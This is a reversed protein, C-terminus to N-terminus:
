AARSTMGRSIIGSVAMTILMTGVLFLLGGGVIAAKDMGVLVTIMMWIVASILGAILGGRVQERM